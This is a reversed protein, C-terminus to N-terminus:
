ESAKDIHKEIVADAWLGELNYFDRWESQFVHVVVNVYDLLLWQSNEFGEKKWEKVNLKERAEDMVSEALAQVHPSSDGHCIIFYDCVPDKLEALKISIVDLGKKEHLADVITDVLQKTDETIKNM